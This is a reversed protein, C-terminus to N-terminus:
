KRNLKLNTFQLFLMIIILFYLLDSLSLLGTSMTKYHTAIGIESIEIKFSEVADINSIINFGFYFLSCIIVSIILASLPNKSISSCFLSISTFVFSLLFLGIYSGIIGGSDIGNESLYNITFVYTLTPLISLSVITIIALYKGTIIEFSSIPKTKLTEITGNEIESSFSNMSITPIFLLLLFPAIFFFPDINSYGIELINQGTGSIWWLLVSNSLLFLAIILTGSFSSFFMDIEKKFIAKM